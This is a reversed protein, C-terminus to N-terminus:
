SALVIDVRPEERIPTTRSCVRARANEIHHVMTHRPVELLLLMSAILEADDAPVRVDFRGDSSSLSVTTMAVLVEVFSVNPRHTRWESAATSAVL